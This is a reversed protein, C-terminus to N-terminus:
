CCFPSRPKFLWYINEQSGNYFIKCTSKGQLGGKKKKMEKPFVSSLEYLEAGARLLSKRYKAYGGHVIKVDNSALSNTLIRVLDTSQLEEAYKSKKAKLYQSKLGDQKEEFDTLDADGTLLAIPYSYSSNWYEDFSDSIQSVVAGAVLVDLDGFEM